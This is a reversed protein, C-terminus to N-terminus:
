GVNQEIVQVFLGTQFPSLSVAWVATITVTDM